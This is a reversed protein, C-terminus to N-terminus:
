IAVEKSVSAMIWIFVGMIVPIVLFVFVSLLVITSSGASGSIVGMIALIIILFLPFAVGVTVYTEAFLGVNEANRRLAIRLENQYEEAKSIFYPKLRGGTTSTTIVGQLFEQWRTSPSYRAAEGLATLIDMGFLETNRTIRLAEKRIEGYEPRKALEKFIVYVPVDASAMSAIFSMAGGLNADIKKKRSGAVSQPYYIYVLYTIWSSLPILILIVINLIINVRLILMILLILVSIAGVLLSTLLASAIYEEARIDIAAMKLSNQLSVQSKFNRGQIIKSFLKWALKYYPSLTTNGYYSGKIGRVKHAEYKLKNGSEFTQLFKAKKVKLRDFITSSLIRV